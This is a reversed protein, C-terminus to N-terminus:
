LSYIRGYYSPVNVTKREGAHNVVVVDTPAQDIQERWTGAAPFEVSVNQATDSFNILVMFTKAPSTSSRRFVIVRQGQHGADNYYFFDGRASFARNANRLGGLIRYLRVLTQGYRDYFFEWHMPREFLNRGIGWSTMGWNECLEQGQWLMPIGKGTYLAIVYPQTRYFASRDGYPEEILDRLTSEAIRTIFRKNDHQELYQFPAVPFSDGSSPNQYASPYGMFEPDFLFALNSDVYRWYATDACKDMLQNQWCCNSYTSRLIGKPDPLHEACQIIRSYGSADEFRPIGNKSFQYTHYTLSAYGNGVPGDLMGPVYDYRFGDLHFETLWYKNLELFYERTFAKNFDTGPRNPFFEEAFVGMMPNAADTKYYVLNYAFEPHAHAYVADLIVAIGHQHCADVLQKLDDPSGYREDPCYFGLPTYGWEVSEKVNTFPMLEIVNVGLGRLYDLHRSVGNFNRAFEGVHLEYVVMDDIVPVKFSADHWTYTAPSTRLTFASHTGPGAEHAFPDAFWFVVPNGNRLLQYRYVHRGPQGYNSGATATLTTTAQWLNYVGGMHSLPVSVPPIGPTLQDTEHIVRAELSYGDSPNIGPLYIGFQVQWSTPTLQTVHTGVESLDISM